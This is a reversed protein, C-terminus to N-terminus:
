RAPPNPWLKGLTRRAPCTRGNDDQRRGPSRRALRAHRRAVRGVIGAPCRPHSFRESPWGQGAQPCNALAISYAARRVLSSTMVNDFHVMRSAAAANIGSIAQWFFSADGVFGSDFASALFGMGVSGISLAVAAAGDETDAFAVTM